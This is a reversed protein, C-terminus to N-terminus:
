AVALPQAPATSPRTGLVVDWTQTNFHVLPMQIADVDVIKVDSMGMMAEESVSVPRKSVSNMQLIEKLTCTRARGRSSSPTVPGHEDGSHPSTKSWTSSISSSSSERSMGPPTTPSDDSTSSAGAAVEEEEALSHRDPTENTALEHVTESQIEHPFFLLREADSSGLEQPEATYAVADTTSSGTSNGVIKNLGNGYGEIYIECFSPKKTPKTPKTSRTPMEETSTLTKRTVFRRLSSSRKGPDTKTSLSAKLSGQFNAPLTLRRTKDSRGRKVTGGVSSTSTNTHSYGTDPTLYMTSASAGVNQPINQQWPMQEPAHCCLSYSLNAANRVQKPPQAISHFVQLVAYVLIWRVKRGEVASLGELDDDVTKIEFDTYSRVLPCEMLLFDRNSAAILAEKNQTKRAEKEAKRWQIPNWSKRRQNKTRPANAPEVIKPLLPLPQALPEYKHKTDFAQINQLACVGGSKSIDNEALTNSSEPDVLHQYLNQFDSFVRGYIAQQVAEVEFDEPPWSGGHQESYFNKLFTRFRDLHDRAPQPLGLFSGSVDNEFFNVISKNVRDLRLDMELRARNIVTKSKANVVAYEISSRLGRHSMGVCHAFSDIWLDEIQIREALYLAALAHDVCERFDLYRQNEAFSIVELKNQDFGEPRYVDIREKLDVLAQGLTRGALPRNYLWAFFNRTTIHHNFVEELGAGSPAPIYLEQLSISPDCGPCNPMVCESDVHISNRVVCRDVLADFGKIRLFSTHVRFAPGRSSQGPERLYVFCDGTPWCLEPEHFINIWDTTTRSRGDWRRLGASRVDDRTVRGQVRRM